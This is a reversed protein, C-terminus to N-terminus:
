CWRSATESWLFSLLHVCFCFGFVNLYNFWIIVSSEFPYLLNNSEALAALYTGSAAVTNGQTLCSERVASAVIVALLHM